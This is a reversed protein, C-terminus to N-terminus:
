EDLQMEKRAMIRAVDEEFGPLSRNMEVLAGIDLKDYNAEFQRLIKKPDNSIYKQSVSELTTKFGALVREVSDEIM